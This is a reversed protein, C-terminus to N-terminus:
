KKKLIEIETKLDEVQKSLEQVAKVLPLLLKGNSVELRDPNSELVMNLYDADFDKQVQQVEQAILGVDWTKSKRSGDVVGDPYWERRDWHFKRVKVANIFNLGLDFDNIDAKDRADSLAVITQTNCRLVTVNADGLTIENTATAASAQANYGLTTLNSGTTITNGALYGLATNNNGYTVAGLAGRGVATGGAGTTNANLSQYGIAINSGGYTNAALASQGIAVSGTGTTNAGLADTGIAVNSNGFTNADLANVGVAVNNIGTTNGALAYYGVATNGIANNQQLSYYGIATNNNGTVNAVMSNGGIAVNYNGFTTSKLAFYGVATNYVGSTNFGLALTGIAVNQAGTTNATLAQYGVGVNHSGFTNTDVALYGIAINYNGTTNAALAQYGLATNGAGFTTANLAQYGVAVNFEGTTNQALAYPGIATSNSLAYAGLANIGVAVNGGGTINNQMAGYGIAVSYWGTLNGYMAYYGMAVNGGGSTHSYMAYYGVATNRIGTTNTRLASSGVATNNNGFTNAGLSGRGVAINQIGTTNAILAGYGVAVNSAGTTNVSLAGHGLATNYGGFTNAALTSVGIATNYQGTTNLTLALTGIATNFSSVNANLTNRGVATNQTGIVNASLAGSGIATNYQGTTNLALAYYGLAVNRDGITNAALTQHGIATNYVGTTNAALANSGIAVNQTGISNATLANHGIAVNDIGTINAYLAQFGIAINQRGFTNTDLTRYGIAVNDNGTRNNVLARYGLALNRNGFTNAGLADRGIAFNDAGTTNVSLAQYGIAILSGVTSAAAAAFGIAVSYNGTVSATLANYGIAVNSAGFTNADLAYSGIAINYAGTTNANLANNGIAVNDTGITNVGLTNSGIAVNSVGTTNADLAQHGIAINDTGFTNAILASSGIAVNYQGTTNASLASWGIGVNFSSVTNNLTLYGIAVNQAGTLNNTLASRGIAVNVNGWTNKGCADYGIAVNHSGTTNDYLAYSGIATNYAGITNASLTNAGVATNDGGTTNLTLSLYGVATNGQGTTNAKLAQYGVATWWGNAMNAVNLAEHGIAVNGSGSVNAGLTNYGIAVNDVGITNAQLAAWGVAVNNNGTTNSWLASVGIAVNYVGFTNFYMANAGVATNSYGTTTSYLAQYGIATNWSTTNTYLAQHGIATNNVGILNTYLARYGVAINNEGTTNANLAYAGVATNYRAITNNTLAGAGIATNDTGTSNTGLAAAGFATNRDGIDNNYLALYGVATNAQGTVNYNLARYGVATNNVGTTNYSLAGDGIAVLESVSSYQLAGYGIAINRVGTSNAVLANYGIAVNYTGTTNAGLAQFGVAVNGNGITNASLATEGIAINYHGFTNSYLAQWGVAVNHNGTINNFMAENGIAVNDYGYTNSSMANYGVATNQFGSVNAALTGLGIATNYNGTVNNGLANYGLATNYNGFTNNHLAYYGVATNQAGTTNVLLAQSGLATNSAIDGAGLGITLSHVTLDNAIPELFISARTVRKKNWSDASDEIIFEDLDVVPTKADVVHIENPVNTHLAYIDTITTALESARYPLVHITNADEVFLVPNSFGTEPETATLVGASTTSVFYFTEVTLGHATITFRGSQAAVFSDLGTVETIVHTALTLSNDALAAKWIGADFYIPTLVTFGHGTQAVTFTTGASGGSVLDDLTDLAKQVTDDAASLNNNFNSTDTPITSATPSPGAAGIVTGTSTSVRINIFTADVLKIHTNTFLGTTNYLFTLRYIPVIEQIALAALGSLNNFSWGSESLTTTLNSGVSQSQGMIAILPQSTMNTACLYVCYYRNATMNSWGGTPNNYQATMSAITSADVAAGGSVGLFDTTPNLRRWTYVGGVYSDIYFIPIRAGIVIADGSVMGAVTAVTFSTGTGGASITTTGRVITTNGQMVTVAQGTVLTHSTSFVITTDNTGVTALATFGLFQEVTLAWDTYPAATTSAISADTHVIANRIDEDFFSGSSIQVQARGFNDNTNGSLNTLGNYQNFIFGSNYVAGQAHNRAHQFIDRGATHREEGIWTINTTVSNYRFNWLLVDPSYIDWPIQTLVLVPTAVDTTTKDIYLFWLGEAATASITYASINGATVTFKKGNIYYSFSTNAGVFSITAVIDPASYTIAVKFKGRESWPVGTALKTDLGYNVFNRNLSSITVDTFSPSDTTNIAQDSHYFSSTDVDGGQLGSLGNHITIGSFVMTTATDIKSATSAGTAVIIRGVLMSFTTFLAPLNSPPTSAAADALTGYASTGLVVLTQLSNQTLVRYIWNVAYKNPTLAVLNTGNDYQSNNYQTITTSTWVGASHYYLTMEQGGVDSKIADLTVNAAGYWVKGSSINVVRTASETIILSNPEAHFRDTKVLRHSLKNSLGQAMLDWMLYYITGGNNFVTVIPIVNSQNIPTVDTIMEVIPNGSNYNAVIYSTVGSTPNFTGGAIKYRNLSPSYYTDDDYLLYEGTGVTISGAGTSISPSIFIGASDYFVYDPMEEVSDFYPHMVGEDAGVEIAAFGIYVCHDRLILPPEPPLEQHCEDENYHQVTGLTYFVERVDGISRYFYRNVWRNATGAVANTGNDYLSNDYYTEHTYTWVGGVHNVRTLTHTSSDFPNVVIPTVGAYVIASTVVVTRYHPSSSESIILGKDISRRYSVTNYAWRHIKNALGLGFTDDGISHITSDQRWCVFVTFISSGNILYKNTEKRCIPTGGNYDVVVYEETNETFTLTVEPITFAKLIGTYDANPYVFAVFSSITATGDNNDTLTPETIPGADQPFTSYTNVVGAEAYLVGNKTLFNLNTINATTINGTTINDTTINATDLNATTAGLTTITASTAGLTTIDAELANLGAASLDLTDGDQIQQKLGSNLVLPKRDAM